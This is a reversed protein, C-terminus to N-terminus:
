LSRFTLKLGPTPPEGLPISRYFCSRRGTHCAKGDGQITARVWIVDQDCDTWMDVIQLTNGSEEGKRWLKKRSRSYFTAQRTSISLALAESNMFAFMLVEGTDAETVVAGILGHEDFKPAFTEGAEIEAATGRAAFLASQPM